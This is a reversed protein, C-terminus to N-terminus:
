GACLLGKLSIHCFMVRQACGVRITKKGPHMQPATLWSVGIRQHITSQTGILSDGITDPLSFRRSAQALNQELSSKQPARQVGKVLGPAKSLFQVVFRNNTQSHQAGSIDSALASLQGLRLSLILLRQLAARTHSTRRLDGSLDREFQAHCTQRDQEALQIARFMSQVTRM